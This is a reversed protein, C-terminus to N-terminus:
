GSRFRTKPVTFSDEEAAQGTGTSSFRFHWVGEFSLDVNSYYEGMASRQIQEGVGYTYETAVGAPTEVKFKVSTPDVASGSTVDRFSATCRIINGKPFTLAM